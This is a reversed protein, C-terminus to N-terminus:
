KKYNKLYDAFIKETEDSIIKELKEIIMELFKKIFVLDINIFFFNIKEKFYEREYADYNGISSYESILGLQVIRINEEKGILFLGKKRPISIIKLDYDLLKKKFFSIENKITNRSIKLLDCM